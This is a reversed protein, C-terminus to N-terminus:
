PTADMIPRPPSPHVNGYVRTQVVRHYQVRAQYAMVALATRQYLM